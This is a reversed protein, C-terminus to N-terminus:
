ISAIWLFAAPAALFLGGFFLGAGVNKLTYDTPRTHPGFLIVFGALGCILGLVLSIFWVVAAPPEVMRHWNVPEGTPQNNPSEQQEYGGNAAGPHEPFGVIGQVIGQKFGFLRCLGGFNGSTGCLICNLQSVSGCLALQPSINVDFGSVKSPVLRGSTGIDLYAVSALRWGSIQNKSADYSGVFIRWWIASQWCGKSVTRCADSHTTFIIGLFDGANETLALVFGISQLKRLFEWPAAAFGSSIEWESKEHDARNIVGVNEPFLAVSAKADNVNGRSDTAIAGFM